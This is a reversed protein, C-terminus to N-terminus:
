SEFHRDQNKDRKKPASNELLDTTRETITPIYQTSGGESLQETPEPPTLVEPQSTLTSDNEKQRRPSLYPFAVLFMGALSLLVGLVTIVDAYLLKKGVVGIAAGILMIIFGWLAFNTEEDKGRKAGIAPTRATDLATQPKELQQTTMQVRTGCARCYKQNAQIELGCKPCKM